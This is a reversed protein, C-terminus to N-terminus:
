SSVRSSLRNFDVKLFFKLCLNDAYNLINHEDGPIPSQLVQPYIARRLNM